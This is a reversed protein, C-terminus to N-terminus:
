FVIDPIVQVSSTFFPEMDNLNCILIIMYHAVDNYLLDVSLQM